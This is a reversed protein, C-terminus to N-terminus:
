TTRSYEIRAELGDYYARRLKEVVSKELQWYGTYSLFHEFLCEKSHKYPKELECGPGKCKNM